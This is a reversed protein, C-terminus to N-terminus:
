IPIDNNNNWSAHPLNSKDIDNPFALKCDNHWAQFIADVQVILRPIHVMKIMQKTYPGNRLNTFRDLLYVMEYNQGYSPCHQLDRLFITM